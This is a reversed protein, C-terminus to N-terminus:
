ISNGSTSVNDSIFLVEYDFILLIILLFMFKLCFLLEFVTTVSQSHDIM